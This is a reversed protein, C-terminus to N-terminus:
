KKLKIYQSSCYGVFSSSNKTYSVKYWIVGNTRTAGTITVTSGNSLSGIIVASTDGSKRVNLSSATVTGTLNGSYYSTGYSVRSNYTNKGYTKYAVVHYRYPSTLATGLYTTSNVGELTTVLTYKNTTTNYIYLKYGTAGAQRDWFLFQYRGFLKYKFNSVQSPCTTTNLETNDSVYDVSNVTKYAQIMFKYGKCALLGPVTYSRTGSGVKKILDYQNTNYNYYYLMYGNAGSVASWSLSISEATYSTLKLSSVRAPGTGAYIKDSYPYANTVKGGSMKYSRVCYQYSVGSPLKNHIYFNSYNNATDGLVKWTTTPSTKVYVRYANVGKQMDWMLKVQNSGSSAVHLNKVKGPSQLDGMTASTMKNSFAGYYSGSHLYHIARVAYTYATGELLNNDTYTLTSAGRLLAVQKYTNTDNDLRFVQYGYCGVVKSWKLSIASDSQPTLTLSSVKDPAKMYGYNLDTAHNIGPVQGSDSYQWYNYDGTYNATNNYIALWLPYYKTINDPNLNSNLLSKYSYMMATYGSNEITACFANCIATATARSLKANQLRGNPYFEYDYIIPLNINYGKILDIVFRAEQQAEAVTISQTYTYVGVDLGAAIAGELNTKYRDDTYLGGGSAGRGSVRIFVFSYGANKVQTWNIVGNWQSVDIGNLVDYGSFRSDHYYTKFIESSQPDVILANPSAKDKLSEESADETTDEYAKETIDESADETTDEYAKETIDESTDETTVQSSDETVDEAYGTDGTDEYSTDPNESTNESATETSAEYVDKTVAENAAQSNLPAFGTLLLFASVLSLSILPKLRKKRIM